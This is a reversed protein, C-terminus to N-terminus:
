QTQLIDHKSIIGQRIVEIEDEAIRVITSAFINEKKTEHLCILINKTEFIKQIECSCTSPKERSLNISTSIIPKGFISLFKRM